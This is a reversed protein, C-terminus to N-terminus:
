QPQWESNIYKKDRNNYYGAKKCVWQGSSDKLRYIDGVLGHTAPTPPNTGLIVRHGVYQNGELGYTSTLHNATEDININKHELRNLNPAYYGGIHMYNKSKIIVGDILINAFANGLSDKFGTWQFPLAAEITTNKIRWTGGRKFMGIGANVRPGIRGGNITLVNNSEILDHGVLIGYLFDKDGYDSGVSFTCNNFTLSQNKESSGSNNWAIFPAASLVEGSKPPYRRTAYFECNEFVVDHPWLIRNWPNVGFKCNTLRVKSDKAVLNFWGGAVVNKGTVLSGDSVGIDFGSELHVDELDLVVKHSNGYGESGGGLEVDIGNGGRTTFNKVTAITNGGLILFGGRFCNIGTCNTVKVSVNKYISIGDSVSDKFTCNDIVVQLRGPSEKKASLFLLDAHEQEYKKYPGQNPSNGDFTLDKFVLPASDHNGLYAFAQNTFTRVHRKKQFLNDPRKIIAEGIGQYTIGERINVSTVSYTGAPFNIVGGGRRYVADVARQIAATDDTVGDGKAGFMIDKVNVTQQNAVVTPKAPLGAHLKTVVNPICLILFSLIIKAFFNGINNHSYHRVYSIGMPKEM